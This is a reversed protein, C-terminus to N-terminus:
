LIIPLVWVSHTGDTVSLDVGVHTSIGKYISVYSSTTASRKIKLGWVSNGAQAPHPFSTGGAGTKLRLSVYGGTVPAGSIQHWIILANFGSCDVEVESGATVGSHTQTVSGHSNLKVAGITNTGAPLATVLNVRQAENAEDYANRIADSFTDAKKAL